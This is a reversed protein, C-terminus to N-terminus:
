TFIRLKGKSDLMKKTEEKYVFRQDNIPIIKGDGTVSEWFM